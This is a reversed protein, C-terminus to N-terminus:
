TALKAATATKIIAGHVASGREDVGLEVADVVNDPALAVEDM